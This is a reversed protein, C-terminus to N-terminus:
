RAGGERIVREVQYEVGSGSTVVCPDRTGAIRFKKSKGAPVVAKPDSGGTCSADADSTCAETNAVTYFCVEGSSGINEIVIDQAFRVSRQAVPVVPSATVAIVPTTGASSSVYKIEPDTELPQAAAEFVEAMSLRYAAQAETPAASFLVLGAVATFALILRVPYTKM